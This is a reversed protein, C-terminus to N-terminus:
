SLLEHAPVRVSGHDTYRMGTSAIFDYDDNVADVLCSFQRGSPLTATVCYHAIQGRKNTLEAVCYVTATVPKGGDFALLKEGHNLDNANILNLGDHPEVDDITPLGHLTSYSAM